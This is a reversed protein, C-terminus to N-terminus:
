ISGGTFEHEHISRTSLSSATAGSTECMSVPILGTREDMGFCLNLNQIAQSAAGKLLNDLAFGIVLKRDDVLWGIDCFPTGAAYHLQPLQDGRLRVFHSSSYAHEFLESLEQQSYNRQLPVHVLGWIGRTWPGSAPVFAIDFAPDLCQLVEQEHDHKFVNYAKVNGDRDPFHTAATHRAGSGSAGTLATVGVSGHTQVTRLPYLSLAIGTAFCGPNAILSTGRAVPNIEPLGYTAQMLLEPAPHLRGHRASFRTPDRFRLDASMDIILGRFGENRLEAASSAGSGHPGCLIVADLEQTVARLSLSFRDTTMGYLRPHIDSLLKGSASSSSVSHLTLHPHRMVLSILERGVYGAGHQIGIQLLQTSDNM